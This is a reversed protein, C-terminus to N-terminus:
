VKRYGILLNLCSLHLCNSNFSHYFIFCIILARSGLFFFLRHRNCLLFLVALMEGAGLVWGRATQREQSLPFSFSGLCLLLGRAYWAGHPSGQHVFPAGKDEEGVGCGHRGATRM